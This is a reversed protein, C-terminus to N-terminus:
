VESGSRRVIHALMDVMFDIDDAVRVLTQLWPQGSGGGRRANKRLSKEASSRQRVYRVFIDDVASRNVVAPQLAQSETLAQPEICCTSGSGPGLRLFYGVNEDRDWVYREGGRGTLLEYQNGDSLSVSSEQIFRVNVPGSPIKQGVCVCVCM